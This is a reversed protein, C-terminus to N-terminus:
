GHSVVGETAATRAVLGVQTGPAPGDVDLHRHAWRTSLRTTVNSVALVPVLGVWGQWGHTLLREGAFSYLALRCLDGAMDLHGALNAKGRAEAVTLLTALFDNAAMAAAAEASLIVPNM